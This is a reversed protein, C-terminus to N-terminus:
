KLMERCAKECVRCEKACQVMIEDSAHKDCETACKTCTDACATCIQGSFVGKRAVIRSAASCVDACDLCTRLTAMHHSKGESILTACHRACADCTRQCKSCAEACEDFVKDRNAQDAGESRNDIAAMMIAEESGIDRTNITV